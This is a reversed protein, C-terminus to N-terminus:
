LRGWIRLVFLLVGIGCIMLASGYFLLRGVRYNTEWFQSTTRRTAGRPSKERDHHSLDRTLLDAYLLAPFLLILLNGKLVSLISMGIGTLLFVRMVRRVLYPMFCSDRLETTNHYSSRKAM